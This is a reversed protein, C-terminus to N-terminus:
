YSSHNWISRTMPSSFPFFNTPEAWLRQANAAVLLSSTAMGIAAAWPPVMGVAALPIATANYAMAWILNQRVVRQTQQAKTVLPSLGRLDAQLSIIDAATRALSTTNGAALSVDATALVPADNIGDGVMLVTFGTKQLNAVYEQKQDPTAQATFQAIGLSKAVTEVALSNDGSLLHVRLGQQHLSRVLTFAEPRISDNILFHALVQVSGQEVSPDTLTLFVESAAADQQKRQYLANHTDEFGCWSASGLLLRCDQGQANQWTAGVGHGARHEVASAPYGLQTLATLIAAGSLDGSSRVGSPADVTEAAAKHLVNAFPHSSGTELLSALTLARAPTMDAKVHTNTLIPHGSTLTGTKDFVVDTVTALTELAHGRTILLHNKLLSGTAAALAAPTALSLACPCSVVLVAVATAGARQPDWLMWLGWILSAFLLLASVFYSALRDALQVGAPKESAGREILKDIVSLTSSSQPRAVRLQVPAGVLLAGGAVHDGVTISVPIPEGTILSNNVASEGSIVEGDVPVRDGQSVAIVDGTALRVAPVMETADETIRQATEPAASSIDDVARMARRRVSWELYRAGLLLFVFMAVSDFYIEGHHTLTAWLSAFYAALIGMSVPVDMGPQLRTLDFWAGKLFPWASYIVVPTTIILSAWRLLQEYRAEIDGDDTLYAPLAYMMVQMTAIAALFLRQLFARSERKLSLERERADFPIAQYGMESVRRLIHSLKQTDSAFQIHARATSFNVSAKVVGPIARLSRELVWVCAGCRLGEIILHLDVISGTENGTIDTSHLYREAMEPEDYVDLEDLYASLDDPLLGFEAPETRFRYYDGLGADVIAQM